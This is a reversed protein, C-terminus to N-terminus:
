PGTNRTQLLYQYLRTDGLVLTQIEAASEPLKAAAIDPASCFLRIRSGRDTETEDIIHRRPSDMPGFYFIEKNTIAAARHKPPQNFLNNALSRLYFIIKNRDKDSIALPLAQELYLLSLKSLAVAKDPDGGYFLPDALAKAALGSNQNLYFNRPFFRRGHMFAQLGKNYQRQRVFNLGEENDILDTYANVRAASLHTAAEVFRGQQSIVAGLRETNRWGAPNITRSTRYAIEALAFASKRELQNGLALYRDSTFKLLTTITLVALLISLILRWRLPTTIHSGRTATKQTQHLTTNARSALFWFLVGSSMLSLPFSVLAHISITAMSCLLSISPLNDHSKNATKFFRIILYILLALFLGATILGGEAAIQLYQNHADLAWGANPRYHWNDPRELFEKQYNPMVFGYNGIGVGKAPHDRIMDLTIGWLMYRTQTSQSEFMSQSSFREALGDPHKSESFPPTGGFSLILILAIVGLTALHRVRTKLWGDKQFILLLAGMTTLSLLLGLLAGRTKAYLLTALIVTYCLYILPNKKQPHLLILYLCLPILPALFACLYNQNGFTSIMRSRGDLTAIVPDFHIGYYNLIAFGGTAAGGILALLIIKDQQKETLQRTLFYLILLATWKNIAWLSWYYNEALVASALYSLFFLAVIRDQWTTVTAVPQNKIIHLALLGFLIIEALFDKPETAGRISGFYILPVGLFLLGICHALIDSKLRPQQTLPLSSNM